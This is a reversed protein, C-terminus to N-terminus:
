KIEVEEGANVFLTNGIDSLGKMSDGGSHKIVEDRVGIITLDAATHPILDTAVATSAFLVLCAFAIAALRKKEISEM